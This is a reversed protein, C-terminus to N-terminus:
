DETKPRPDETKSVPEETKKRSYYFSSILTIVAIVLFALIRYGLDMNKLDFFILYGVSTVLTAFAIWRYKQNKLIFSLAFFLAAASVWSVTIFKDPVLHYLTYLVGLFAAVLYINRMFETKLTLREKKWNLLRATFLAVLAFAINATNISEGRILYFILLSLYLITNAIVILPSRYWLAISVVLFSQLALWFFADPLGTYGYILISISVFSIVAYFATIFMKRGRLQLIVSYILSFGAIATFIGMYNEAYFISIEWLLLMVFCVANWINVSIVLGDDLPNKKQGLALMSYLFGYAFLFVLNSQPEEIAQFAGGMMPNNMLWLFHTLYVLFLSLYLYRTWGKTLLLYVGTFASIVLLSLSVYTQDVIVATALIMLLGLSALSESNKKLAFVAMYTIPLILLIMALPESRILPNDTFFHLQITIYYLLVHVAIRLKFIQQPFSNRLLYTILLVAGTSLYGLGVALGNKDQNNLFSMIFIVLFLVLISSIWSFVQEGFRSEIAESGMDKLGKGSQEMAESEYKRQLDTGFKYDLLEEIQSIRSSLDNLQDKIEGLEIRKESYSNEM